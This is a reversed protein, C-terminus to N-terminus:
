RPAQPTWAALDRQAKQVFRYEFVRGPPIDEAPNGGPKIMSIVAIQDQEALSGSSVAEEQLAEYSQAAEKQTVRFSQMVKPIVYDRQSLAFRLGKLAARAMKEVEQPSRRIKEETTALGAQPWRVYDIAKAVKRYGMEIARSDFPASLFTAHVGGSVLAAFRDVSSSGLGLYTIDKLPDLGHSKLIERMILDNSSGISAIGITKKRLDEVSRIQPQAILSYHTRLTTFVIKFPQRSQVVAPVVTGTPVMYDFSGALMAQGAIVSNRTLIFEPNLGEKRFFGLHKELSFWVTSPTLSAYAVTIKKAPNQAFAHQLYDACIVCLVATLLTKGFSM